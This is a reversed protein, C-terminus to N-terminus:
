VEAKSKVNGAMYSSRVLPGAEIHTINLEEAMQSLEQFEEPLWWRSVPLHDASPRLYQGITVIDTGVGALDALAEKVEDMTEGLGVMISSKTRLGAMKARALVALSRAYGAQPRVERQLRLITEINHNLVDPKEQFVLDLLDPRGKFDPILVEVGVGPCTDRVERISEVFGGAGGDALDDRAVATIVVYKLGMTKVAKALREPEGIDPPLPKQTDVLCFGCNRTCRDGNIMFTATGAGWCEYLNPCGASECVTPLDKLM